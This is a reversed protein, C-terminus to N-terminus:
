QWHHPAPAELLTNIKTHGSGYRLSEGAGTEIGINVVYLINSFPMLKFLGNSEGNLDECIILDHLFMLFIGEAL